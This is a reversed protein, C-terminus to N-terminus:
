RPRDDARTADISPISDIRGRWEARDHRLTSKRVLEGPTPSVPLVMRAPSGAYIGSERRDGADPGVLLSHAALMSRAPLESGPALVCNTLVGAREGIAVRRAYCRNTTHDLDRTEVTSHHGGFAAYAGLHVTGSCDFFHRSTIFSGADMLLTGAATAIERYRRDAYFINWSGIAAGERIELTGLRFFVNGASIRTGGDLVVRGLDVVFAPAIHATDAISHGWHGLIRNKARCSPLLWILTEVSGM